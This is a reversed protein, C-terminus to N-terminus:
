SRVFALLRWPWVRATFDSVSFFGAIATVWGLCFCLLLGAADHWFSLYENMLRASPQFGDDTRPMSAPQDRGARHLRRYDQSATGWWWRRQASPRYAAGIGRDGTFATYDPKDGSPAATGASEAAGEECLLDKSIIYRKQAQLLTALPSVFEEFCNNGASLNVLPPRASSLARNM